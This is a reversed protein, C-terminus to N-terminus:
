VERTRRLDERVQDLERARDRGAQEAEAWRGEADLRAQAEEVRAKETSILQDELLRNEATLRASNVLSAWVVAVLLFALLSGVLFTIRERHGAEEVESELKWIQYGAESPHDAVEGRQAAWVQSQARQWANENADWILFGGVILSFIWAVAFLFAVRQWTRVKRRLQRLMADPIM